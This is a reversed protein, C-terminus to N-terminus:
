ILDALKETLYCLYSNDPKGVLIIKAIKILIIVNMGVM